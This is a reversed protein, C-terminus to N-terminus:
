TLEEEQVQTPVEPFKQGLRQGVIIEAEAIVKEADENSSEFTLPNTNIQGADVLISSLLGSIEGIENEADPVLNALGPRISRIIEVAPNLTVAIDGLEQVTSLRLVLQELALKAQTVIGYMKRVEGLENALMNARANENKQVSVVVKAFISADRDRLKASTQELKVIQIQIHRTAEELKQRLNQVPKEGGRIRSGLSGSPPQFTPSSKRHWRSAFNSGLIM